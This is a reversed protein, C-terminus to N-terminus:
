PVLRFEVPSSNLSALRAVVRYQGEAAKTQDPGCDPTSTLGSWEVDNRVSQGPQLLPQENTSEAYCDNSSWVHKGSQSTVTLERLTRNTDRVCPRDGANTIVISMPVREGVRFEPRPVEAVVRIVEDPCQQPPEDAAIAVPPGPPPAAQPQPGSGSLLVVAGWGLLVVALLVAVIAVVRRRWYVAPPLPGNPDLM